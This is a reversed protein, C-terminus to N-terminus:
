MLESTMLEPTALSHWSTKNEICIAAQFHDSKRRQKMIFTLLHACCYRNGFSKRRSPQFSKSREQCAPSSDERLNTVLLRLVRYAPTVLSTM